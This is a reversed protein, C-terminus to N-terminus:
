SVEQLEFFFSFKLMQPDVFFKGYNAEFDWFKHNIFDEIFDNVGKETLLDYRDVDTQLHGFYHEIVEEANTLEVSECDSIKCSLSGGRTDIGIGQLSILYNVVDEWEGLTRFTNLPKIYGVM